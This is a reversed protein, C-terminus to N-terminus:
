CGAGAELELDLFPIAEPARPDVHDGTLRARVGGPGLELEVAGDVPLYRRADIVHEGTGVITGAEDFLEARFRFERGILGPVRHGARNSIVVVARGARLELRVEFAMRAFRPDRPTQLAHSRVRRVGAATSGDGGREPVTLEREVFAMHCGVCSRGRAAQGSAHFDKAIGVVPGISTAHCTTCLASAGAESFHSSQETAHADTEVGLPGLMTGDPGLHCADCSVGLHRDEARAKPRKPLESVLLPQPVHCGLCSRVRKRGALEEQYVEDVWALGHATGAWEEVVAAHCEACSIERWGELEAPRFPVVPEPTTLEWAGEDGTEGLTLAAVLALGARPLTFSGDSRM